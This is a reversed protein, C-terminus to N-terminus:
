KEEEFGSELKELLRYQPIGSIQGAIAATPSVYSLARVAALSHGSSVMSAQMRSEVEAIVDYLRREDAFNSRLAIEEVLRFVEALNEYFAKAKIELTVKYDPMHLADIYTNVVIGIGGTKINTEHYLSGYSYNETDVMGLVNKLVGIYPFM